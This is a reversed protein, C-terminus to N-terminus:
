LEILTHGYANVIRTAGLRVERQTNGYNLHQHGHVMLRPQHKDLLTRFCSFGRHPLDLGDGLGLVPAHTLLIDFGQLLPLWQRRIRQQMEKETYQHPGGSYRMSGGLGLIRLGNVTVLRDDIAECGGPPQLHHRRDHNGHVYLVPRHIVTAVFSMYDQPLDGAMLVLDVDAFHEPQFHDYVYPSVMDSLALIKM